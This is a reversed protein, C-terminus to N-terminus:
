TQRPEPTDFGRQFFVRLAQNRSYHAGPAIAKECLQHFALAAFFEPFHKQNVALAESRPTKSWYYLKLEQKSEHPLTQDVSLSLFGEDEPHFESDM